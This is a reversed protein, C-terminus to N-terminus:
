KFINRLLIEKKVQKRHLRLWEYRNGEAVTKRFEEETDPYYLGNSSFYVAAIDSDNEYERIIYNDKEYVSRILPNNEDWINFDSGQKTSEM